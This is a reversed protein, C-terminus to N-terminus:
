LVCVFPHEGYLIDSSFDYSYFSLLVCGVSEVSVFFVKVVAVPCFRKEYYSHAHMKNITFSVNYLFIVSVVLVYIDLLYFASCYCFLLSTSMYLVVKYMKVGYYLDLKLTKMCSVITM